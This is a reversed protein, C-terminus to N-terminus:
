HRSLCVSACVAIARTSVWSAELARGGDFYPRDCKRQCVQHHSAPFQEEDTIPVTVSRGRTRRLGVHECQECVTAIVTNFQVHLIIIIIIAVGSEAREVNSLTAYPEAVEGTRVTIIGPAPCASVGQARHSSTTGRNSQAHSTHLLVGRVCQCSNEQQQLSFLNSHRM